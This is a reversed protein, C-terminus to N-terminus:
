FFFSSMLFDVEQLCRFVPLLPLKQLSTLMQFSPIDCPLKRIKTAKQKFTTWTQYLMPYSLGWCDKQLIPILAVYCWSLSSKSFSFFVSLFFNQKRQGVQALVHDWNSPCTALLWTLFLSSFHFKLQHQLSTQPKPRYFNLFSFVFSINKKKKKPSIQWFRSDRCCLM